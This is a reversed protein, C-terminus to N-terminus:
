LSTWIAQDLTTSHRDLITRLKATSEILPEILVVLVVFSIRLANFLMKTFTGVYIAKAHEGYQPTACGRQELQVRLLSPQTLSLESPRV